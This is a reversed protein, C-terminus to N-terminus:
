SLNLPRTKAWDLPISQVLRPQSTDRVHFTFQSGPILNEPNDEEECLKGTTCPIKRLFDEKGHDFCSDWAIDSIKSFMKPCADSRPIVTRNGYLELFYESDVVVFYVNTKWSHKSTINGYIYGQTNLKDVMNTQQFGFKALFSFFEHSKWTGKLHLGHTYTYVSILVFLHSIKIWGMRPFTFDAPVFNNWQVQGTM